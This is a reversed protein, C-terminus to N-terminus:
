GADGVTVALCLLDQNRKRAGAIGPSPANDNGHIQGSTNEEGYVNGKAGRLAEKLAEIQM